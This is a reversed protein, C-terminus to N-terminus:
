MRLYNKQIEHALTFFEEVLDKDERNFSVHSKIARLYIVAGLLLQPDPIYTDIWEIGGAEVTHALTYNNREVRQYFALPSENFYPFGMWYFRAGNRFWAALEIKEDDSFISTDIANADIGTVPHFLFAQKKTDNNTRKTKV